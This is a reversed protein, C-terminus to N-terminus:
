WLTQIWTLVGDTQDELANIINAVDVASSTGIIEYRKIESWESVLSWNTAFTVSANKKANLDNELGALKILIPYKHTLFSKSIEGTDPYGMNLIKCIRAKLATELVYGVIYAAGDAKGAALLIKAEELRSISIHQLETRTPM